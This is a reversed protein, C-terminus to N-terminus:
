SEENIEIKDWVEEKPFKKLNRFSNGPLKLDFGCISKYNCYDCATKEGLKFPNIKTSGDLIEKGLETIKKNVYGTMAEFQKRNATNSRKNPRGEKNTEVPIIDSKTSGNISDSTGIFKRDMLKVIDMDSNAIGNMRLEKLINDKIVQRRKLEKELISGDDISKATEITIKNSLLVEEEELVKEIMPDDMNYYFMGAPIINKDPHKKEELEISANMYVVLQLQLGYYLSLIDFSTSGSKYDIVKVYVNDEEEYTDLRDIRGQLRMYESDSLEINLAKLNDLYSFKLEFGTPEFEGQKVHECLAWITRKTIREVRQIMYENRKSSKLISNGYDEVAEKVCETVFKDRVEDTVTHWNYDSNLLSKSFLEISNHFINGLDPVMLKYEQREMLELGYNLFHAFACAAYKELRTVSNTLESGYLVRAVAKSIGTEDNLYFAGEIYHILDEKFDEKSFYWRFLERWEDDMDHYQYERLGNVLYNLGGKSDLYDTLGKERSDEDLVVLKEYLTLLKGILHSARLSKGDSSVKSFTIFLKNQPKTLNLYLYFQNTYTSQRKTPALEVKNAALVEREIDSIIGGASNNKPVIGENVGIFFLAKIDKLRTREIDGVVIQDIGPPILGVKAEELGSKLIDSYEKISLVEDGLLDVMQDFLEMVIRYIQKYEKAELPMHCKEFYKRYQELKPGINQKVIFQYLAKTYDLVTSNKKTFVERIEEFDKIFEDRCKNLSELDIPTKTRYKREWTTNWRKFGRIGLALVYNELLDVDDKEMNVLGCRLYRFVSEYSFDKSIMEIVALIFEVFPNSLIGKKHDIFCPILASNFEREVIKSYGEIDGTVVAIEKYRYGEERVLRLIENVVFEVESVPDKLAYINIDEQEKKFIEYPYRFLNHELFALSESERFRYPIGKNKSLKEAYIHKEIPVQEEIAIETLKVITRESLHFLKFDADVHNPNERPDITVTVLVMKCLNMLHRLLKYQSPTFGTFGDFCIVSNKMIQSQDIVEVLVDLIEEATIYKESLFDKFGSYITLVDKLKTQLLPKESTVGIMDELQNPTISYQFIESLLSKLEGIFGQKKVNTAFLVLDKKKEEVVKRLIMTKGTDDLVLKEHGGVEDFIRYALRLFSLIDINMIGKNPHMSVLDKQTQMTFQEPVIVIYNTDENLISKDIMEKYLQYSKGSGSSGLIFQLSM